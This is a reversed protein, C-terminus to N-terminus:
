NKILRQTIWEGSLTQGRFLYVGNQLNDTAIKLEKNWAGQKSTCVKGTADILEVSKLTQQAIEITISNTFVSPYVKLTPLALPEEVQLGQGWNGADWTSYNGDRIFPPAGAVFAGTSWLGASVALAEYPGGGVGYQMFSAMQGATPTGPFTGPYWLAISASAGFTFGSFEIRGGAPVDLPGSKKITLSNVEHVQTGVTIQAGALSFNNQSFNYFRITSSTVREIAVAFTTQVGLALILLLVTKKM